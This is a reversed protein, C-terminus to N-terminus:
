WAKVTSSSMAALDGNLDEPPLLNNFFSRKLRKAQGGLDQDHEDHHHGGNRAPPSRARANRRKARGSPHLEQAPMSAAKGEDLGDDGYRTVMLDKQREACTMGPAPDTDIERSHLSLLRVLSALM